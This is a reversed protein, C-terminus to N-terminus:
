KDKFKLGVTDIPGAGITIVMDGSKAFENLYSIIDDEDKIFLAKGGNNNILHVLTVEDVGYTNVERASYIPAIIVNEFKALVEAFEDLLEYTRSYTHSQFIAFTNNHKVKEIANITSEIETPHHAYDDYILINEKTGIYEFRRGVGTYSEIGEKILEIDDIYMSSLCFVALSNYINHNGIINLNITTIYDDKIYIDYSPFGSDNYSINKAIYEGSKIGYTLVKCENDILSSSNEDDNNVILYGDKPILNSYKKFSSKIHDIDDYYDLHDADINTIIASTPFLHLFSEVYECAELILFDKSGIKINGDIAPLEAGISITPDLKANLFVHSILGTTTSKGHTGSVCICNKYEKSLIGLFEPREYIQINNERAYVLEENDNSISATYIVIDVDKLKSTNTGITIDIGSNELKDTINSKNSDSGSLIAKMDKLLIAIGSMSVGGIGILHIKKDKFM